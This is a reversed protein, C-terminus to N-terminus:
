KIVLFDTSPPKHKFLPARTLNNYLAPITQGPNVNGFKMFPSDDQPELLFPQGLESQVSTLQLVRSLTSPM